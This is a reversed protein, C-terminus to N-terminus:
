EAVDQIKWQMLTFIERYLPLRKEIGNRVASIHMGTIPLERAKIREIEALTEQCQAYTRLHPFWEPHVNVVKLLVRTVIQLKKNAERAAPEIEHGYQADFIAYVLERIEIPHVQEVAYISAVAQSFRSFEDELGPITAITEQLEAYKRELKPLKDTGLLREFARLEIEGYLQFAALTEGPVNHGKKILVLLIHVCAHHLNGEASRDLHQIHVHGLDDARAQAVEHAQRDRIYRGLVELLAQVQGLSLTEPTVALLASIDLPAKLKDVM